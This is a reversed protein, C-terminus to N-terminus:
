IIYWLYVDFVGATLVADQVTLLLTRDATTKIFTSGTGDQVTDKFGTSSWPAGEMGADAVIDASSELTILGDAGAGEVATTVHLLSGIVVAGSPIVVGLSINGVAGGDVAYSYSAKVCKVNTFGETYIKPLVAGIGVVAGVHKDIAVLGNDSDVYQVLDGVCVELCGLNTTLSAQSDDTDNNVFVPDGAKAQTVTGGLPLNFLGKTRVVVSKDAAAGASNDVTQDCIGVYQDGVALVNTTGDNSYAHGTAARIFVPTGKYIIEAAIVPYDVLVGDRTQPDYAATRATM